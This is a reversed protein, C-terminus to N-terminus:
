LMVHSSIMTACYVICFLRDYLFLKHGLYGGLLQGMVGGLGFFVLVATGILVSHVETALYDNLYSGIMGWPVCGPAGQLFILMVSRTSLLALLKSCDIRESYELDLGSSKAGEKFAREKQGRQPETVTCIVLVGLLMAPISVLLFPLRWDSLTDGIVGSLFQGGGIGLSM